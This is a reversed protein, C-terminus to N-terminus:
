TDMAFMQDGKITYADQANNNDSVKAQLGSAQRSRAGVDKRGLAKALNLNGVEIKPLAYNNSEVNRANTTRSKSNHKDLDGMNNFTAPTKAKERASTYDSSEGARTTTGAQTQM